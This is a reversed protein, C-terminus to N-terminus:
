FFFWRKKTKPPDVAIFGGDIVAQGNQVFLRQATDEGWKGRVFDYANELKPHRDKPDHADSAVFHCLGAEIIQVAFKHAPKGFRGTLSGGTVQVLAGQRVWGELTEFNQQIMWNREPHTIIPYVGMGILRDFVEGINPIMNGDPFEVLLYNLGNVTYRQPNKFADEVNEYSLHFDCGSHIRLGPPAQRQLEAIREQNVDPRFEFESNAHPTAVIDTTGAEAALQLMQLSMEVSRSGDDVGYVIHSHIDIV